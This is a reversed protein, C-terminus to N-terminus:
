QKPELIWMRGRIQVNQIDLDVAEVLRVVKMNFVKKDSAMNPTNRATKYLRCCFFTDPCGSSQGSQGAKVWIMRFDIWIM